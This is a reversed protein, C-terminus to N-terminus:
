DEPEARDVRAIFCGAEGNRLHAYRTSPLRFMEEIVADVGEPGVRRQLVLMGADGYAEVVLPLPRLDEPVDQTDYRECAERHIFVPGPAPLAVPDSFPQYTFLLREDTGVTFTRLCLRCPGYGTAVELHAPHGYQPSRLTSRVATAVSDPIGRVRYLLM